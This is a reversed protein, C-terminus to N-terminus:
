GAQSEPPTLGVKVALDRVTDLIRSEIDEQWKSPLQYEMQSTDGEYGGERLVRVSPVYGLLDNSFGIVFADRGLMRKLFIAYDVVVEGGLAVIAQDGIRWVQVPYPYSTRLPKGQDLEALFRRAARQSFSTGQAALKLLDERTPPTSLALDIEAYRTTMAAGLPKMPDALAREVAAALERGYQQALPVTRRPLPNQDAGCGAFFMATAGPHAKELEIQAFGPYDGSWQYFSLVTAHCAYGFVVALLTGDEREVKLVPVAPDVPGKLDYTDLIEAERNNRRNVAFRTVGNGSSLRAPAMSGIAKGVTEVVQDETKRSYREIKKIEGEDLPYINYLSDDLVPGTHTHSSNLIVDARTLQFKEQLRDRITDSIKKPFGLLDSTVLVCCHGAADKLALAKVWLPHLTGEVVHDRGGYGALWLPEQPTIDVRAAGAQWTGAAEQVGSFALPAFALSAPLFLFAM